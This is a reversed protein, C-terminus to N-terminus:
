PAESTADFVINGGVITMVPQIEKIEGAPVTLYDRDLVVMDALKGPAISGLDNERFFFYANNRTYAALADERSIPQHNVVKGGVMEGTVAWHLQTFPKYQNVEFADTGFGWHIGSDEITKLAPMAYGRDGHDEIFAAGSIVARPHVAIYMGLNRLRQIQDRTAQEMHIFAWRLHRFPVEEALTELQRLQEEITWEMTTHIFIPIGNEAAARAMRGWEEWTEPPESPATDTVNDTAAVLREGWNVHDMWEDGDFYRLNPMEAIVQDTTGGGGTATRFCFFRMTLRGERQWQRYIDEYDCSGGSATLGAANLDGLMRFSSSEFIDEPLEQLFGAANRVVGAGANEVVGTPRGAADRVIWPDTRTELGIDEIGRSNLYTEERTFQLLVPNDPAYADLEGRTFPRDDDAFQHPSWGGLTYIWEGPGREQARAQIMELAQQRSEVNDLRLELQWYAGEEQFHAHNDIFGPTVTRGGIDIRQTGPGVLPEIAENTGVLAIRDDRVAVAEAISFRDDVTIIKGNTLVLDAPPQSEPAAPVAGTNALPEPAEAGEQCGCIGLAFGLVIAWRFPKM